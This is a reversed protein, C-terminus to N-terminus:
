NDCVVRIIPHKTSNIDEMSAFQVIGRIAGCVESTSRLLLGNNVEPGTKWQNIASKVDFQVVGPQTPTTHQVTTVDPWESDINDLGIQDINWRLLHDRYKRTAELDYWSQLVLYVRIWHHVTPLTHIYNLYYLEMTASVVTTCPGGETLDQFHVLSRKGPLYDDHFGVDLRNYYALNEEGSITVDQTANLIYTVTVADTSTLTAALVLTIAALISPMAM